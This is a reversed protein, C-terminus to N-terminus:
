QNGSITGGSAKGSSRRIVKQNGSITGGSAKGSSRRIVEQNGSITGGSAKRSSRRIVGEPSWKQHGESSRRIVRQHGRRIVDINASRLRQHSSIVASSSSIVGSSEQHSRHQRM